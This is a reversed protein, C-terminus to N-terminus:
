RLEQSVRVWDVSLTQPFITCEDPAGVFSGGVALNLILYFPHDFVWPGALDAPRVIGYSQDDVFWEISEASWDVRFVHFDQHFGAGPLQFSNTFCGGGSYGPGHVSGHNLDPQQGRYEMIDIEGCQPWSVQGIDAGLLWFAPWIGQGVPLRLRAEVRGWTPEFRGRTVLRASTYASGQYDERRAVLNLCGAGDLAANAPRNTDYELQANGWGTGVDYDWKAPDPPQGAPGNFEDQWVLELERSESAACLSASAAAAPPTWPDCHNFFYPNDLWLTDLSGSLILQALHRRTTLGTFAALPIDLGSWSGRQLPPTSQSHFALEHERDDGGGDWVGNAGFDVLKIRLEAPPATPEATWLDLHLHTMSGADVPQSVFEIGAYGLGSYRKVPEGALQREEVEAQDWAASWSDVQLDAYADSFLSLVRSADRTPLPAPGEPETPPSWGADRLFYLNDVFVSDPDGSFLLQALHARSALGGFQALPLSYGLWCGSALPPSSGADLALESESDDGGGYLGNAGFDVLKVRFAAPPATPDPTWLDFHFHTLGTADIAHTVFESGSFTLNTFLLTADGALQVEQVDAQDWPASWSDVPVDPYADSFLSIVDAAPHASVPAPGLPWAPIGGAATVTFFLRGAGAAHLYPGATVSALLQAPGAPASRSHILYHDAGPVPSWDLVVQGGAGAELRALPAVLGRAPGALALLGQALLGLRIV